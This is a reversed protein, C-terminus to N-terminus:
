DTYISINLMQIKKGRMKFIYPTCNCMKIITEIRCKSYCNDVANSRYYPLNTEEVTRKQYLFCKRDKENLWQLSKDATIHNVSVSIRSLQSKRSYLKYGSSIDPFDEPTHVM